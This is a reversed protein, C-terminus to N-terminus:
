KKKKGKGKGDKKKKGGAKKAHLYGANGGNKELMIAFFEQPSAAKPPPLGLARIIDDNQKSHAWFSANNGFADRVDLSARYELLIKACALRDTKCCIHLPTDGLESEAKADPNAGAKLLAILIEPLNLACAHHVATYGGIMRKEKANLNVKGMQIIKEVMDLDHKKTAIHLITSGNIDTSSVTEEFDYHTVLRNVSQFDSSAVACVLMSNKPNMPIAPLRLDTLIPPLGGASKGKKGKKSVKKKKPPM